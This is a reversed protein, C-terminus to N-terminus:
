PNIEGKMKLLPKDSKNGYILLQNEDQNETLIFVASYKANETRVRFGQDVADVKLSQDLGMKLLYELWKIAREILNSSYQVGSEEALEELHNHLDESTHAM